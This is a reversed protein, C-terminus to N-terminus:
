ILPHMHVIKQDGSDFGVINDFLFDSYFIVTFSNPIFAINQHQELIVLLGILLRLIM